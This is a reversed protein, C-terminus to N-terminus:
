YYHASFPIVDGTVTTGTLTCTTTSSASQSFTNGITTRNTAACFWGTPATFAFTLVVTCAGTTGSAFTGITAGGTQTGASCGSIGPVTGASGHSRGTFDGGVSLKAQSVGALQWDQYLQAGSGVATNTRNILLDTNAATGSVQNYVPTIKVAGGSGSTASFQSGSNGTLIVGFLNANSINNGFIQMPTNTATTILGGAFTINGLTVLTGAACSVSFKSVGAIQADLSNGTNGSACNIGVGTSSTSWSTSTTGAPEILVYPKTTTASGGTIWTGNFTAVPGNGSSLAGNATFVNNGNLVAATGVVGAAPLGTANTLTASTPTGLIPAVFTQVGTFSQAADTRAITANTTPFTMTTADTGALTLSNNATLTKGAAITLVGTGTTFTNGNFTTAVLAGITQTGTFTNAADTRAATFSTTPTTMTIGDTATITLTNNATLTKSAAITLVGTGATFTNGNYTKNILAETGSLTAVQVNAQYLGTANITGAGKNGGTVSSPVTIGGNAEWRVRSTLTTSGDATTAVECYTGGSGVGQNQNAFCRFSGLPGILTAGDYAYSNYGGIQEGSQVATPTGVTGDWRASTFFAPNAISGSVLRSNAGFSYISANSPQSLLTGGSSNISITSPGVLTGPLTIASPLSATCTGSTTVTCTGAVSIQNATGAFTISTVTGSGGGGGGSPPSYQASCLAAFLLAVFAARM